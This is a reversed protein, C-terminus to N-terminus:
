ATSRQRDRGTPKRRKASRRSNARDGRSGTAKKAEEFLLPPKGAPLKLAKRLAELGDALAQADRPALRDVARLLAATPAPPARRLVERGVSSLTVVARRADAASRTKAVLKARVLRAVVISVTSQTTRVRDALESVTLPGEANLQHLLFLQANTVGTRQEVKRASQSLAGIVTRLAHLAHQHPLDRAAVRSPM